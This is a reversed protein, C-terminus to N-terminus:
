ARVAAIVREAREYSETAVDVDNFDGRLAKLAYKEEDIESRTRYGLRRLLPVPPSWGQVAHQLLLSLAAGSLAFWRRDHAIGLALGGLALTAANTQLVQEMDWERELEGIRRQIEQPTRVALTHLRRELAADNSANVDPATYRRVRGSAPSM